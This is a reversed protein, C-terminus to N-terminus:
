KRDKLKLLAQIGELANAKIHILNSDFCHEPNIRIVPTMLMRSARHAMLRITPISEGAGIEVIMTKISNADIDGQLDNLHNAYASSQHNHKTHLYGMDDFMIINPRLPRGCECSPPEISKSVVGNVDIPGVDCFERGKACSYDTCRWDYINGHVEYSNKFGAKKFHGDVNSTICWTDSPLSDGFERLLNYGEHPTSDRYMNLRLGYFGAALHPQEEFAWPNAVDTFDLDLEELFPFENYFGAKDRFTPIYKDSGQRSIHDPRLTCASMGAGSFILLSEACNVIKRLRERDKDEIM